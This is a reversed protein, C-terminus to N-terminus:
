PYLTGEQYEAWLTLTCPRHRRIFYGPRVRYAKPVKRGAIYTMYPKGFYFELIQNIKRLDARWSTKGPQGQKELEMIDQIRIGTAWEYIMVAAVRHGHVPSLNRLFKRVEREWAVLHPNEKVLYKDKTLPMKARMEDPLVLQDHRDSSAADRATSPIRRKNAEDKDFRERLTKEVESLLSNETEPATSM